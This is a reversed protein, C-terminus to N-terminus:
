TAGLMEVARRILWAGIFSEAVWEYANSRNVTTFTRNPAERNAETHAASAGGTLFAESASSEGRDAAIRAGEKGSITEVSARTSFTLIQM